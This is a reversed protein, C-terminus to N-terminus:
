ADDADDEDGDEDEEDEGDDEEDSEDDEEDDEDGEEEALCEADAEVEEQKLEDEGTEMNDDSDTEDSEDTEDDEDNDDIEDDEDSEDETDEESSGLSDFDEDIDTLREGRKRKKKKVNFLNNLYNEADGKAFMHSASPSLKILNMIIYCTKTTLSLIVANPVSGVFLREMAGSVFHLTEELHTRETTARDADIMRAAEENQDQEQQAEEEQQAEQKQSTERKLLDSVNAKLLKLMEHAANVTAGDSTSEDLTTRQTASGSEPDSEMQEAKGELVDIHEVSDDRVVDRLRDGTIFNPDTEADDEDDDEEDSYVASLDEKAGDTVGSDIMKQLDPDFFCLATGTEEDRGCCYDLYETLADVFSRTSEQNSRQARQRRLLIHVANHASVLNRVSQVYAARSTMHAVPRDVSRPPDLVLGPHTQLLRDAAHRTRAGNKSDSAMYETVKKHNEIYALPLYFKPLLNAENPDVDSGEVRGQVWEDLRRTEFFAHAARDAERSSSIPGCFFNPPVADTSTDLSGGYQCLKAFGSTVMDSPRAPMYVLELGNLQVNCMKIMEEYATTGGERMAQGEHIRKICEILPHSLQQSSQQSSQQSLVESPLVSLSTSDVKCFYHHIALDLLLHEPSVEHAGFVEVSTLCGLLVTAHAPHLWIKKKPDDESPNEICAEDPPQLTNLVAVDRKKTKEPNPNLLFLSPTVTVANKDTDFATRIGFRMAVFRDTKKLFKKQEELNGLEALISTQATLAAVDGADRHVDERGVGDLINTVMQRDFFFLRGLLDVRTAANNWPTEDSQSSSPFRMLANHTNDNARYITDVLTNACKIMQTTYEKAKQQAAKAEADQQDATKIKSLDVGVNTYTKWRAATNKQPKVDRMFTRGCSSAMAHVSYLVGKQVAWEGRVKHTPDLRPRRWQMDRLLSSYYKFDDTKTQKVNKPAVALNTPAVALNTPAVALNTTSVANRPIVPEKVSSSDVVSEGPSSDVPVNVLPPIPDIEIGPAQEEVKVSLAQTVVETSAANERDSMFLTDHQEVTSATTNKTARNGKLKQLSAVKRETSVPADHEVLALTEHKSSAKPQASKKFGKKDPQASKKPM